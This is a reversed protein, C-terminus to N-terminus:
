TKMRYILKLNSESYWRRTTGDTDVTIVERWPFTYGSVRKFGQIIMKESLDDHDPQVGPCKTCSCRAPCLHYEYEAKRVLVDGVLFWGFYARIKRGFTSWWAM